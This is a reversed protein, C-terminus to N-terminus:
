IYMKSRAYLIDIKWVDTLKLQGIKFACKVYKYTNLIYM